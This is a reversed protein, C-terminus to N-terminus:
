ICWDKEFKWKELFCLATELKNIQCQFELLIELYSRMSLMSIELLSFHSHFTIMEKSCIHWDSSCSFLENPGKLHMSWIRSKSFCKVKFYSKTMRSEFSLYITSQRQKAFSYYLDLHYYYRLSASHVVTYLACEIWWGRGDKWCGWWIGLPSIETHYIPISLPTWSSEWMGTQQNLDEM